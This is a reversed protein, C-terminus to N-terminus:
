SHVVIGPIFFIPRKLFRASQFTSLVSAMWNDFHYVRGFELGWLPVQWHYSGSGQWYWEIFEKDQNIQDTTRVGSPRNKTTKQLGLPGKTEV